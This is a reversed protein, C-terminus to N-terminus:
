NFVLGGGCGHVAGGDDGAEEGEGGGGKGAVGDDCVVAGFVDEQGDRAGVM